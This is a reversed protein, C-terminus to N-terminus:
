QPDPAVYIRYSHGDAVSQWPGFVQELQRHQEPSFKGMYYPFEMVYIRGTARAKSEALNANIPFIKASPNLEKAMLALHGEMESIPVFLSMEGSTQMLNEVARRPEVIGRVFREWRGVSILLSLSFVAALLPGHRRLLSTAAGSQFLEATILGYLGFLAISAPIEQYAVRGQTSMFVLYSSGMLFFFTANASFKKSERLRGLIQRWCFAFGLLFPATWLSYRAVKYAFDRAYLLWPTNFYTDRTFSAQRMVSVALSLFFVFLALDVLAQALHQKRKGEERWALLAYRGASAFFVLAAPEKSMAALVFFLRAVIASLLFSPSLLCAAGLAFFLCVWTEGIPNLSITELLPKHLLAGGLLFLFLGWNAREHSPKAARIVAAALASSFLLFIAFNFYRFAYPDNPLYKWKLLNALYKVPYFRGLSWYAKIEDQITQGISAVKPMWGNYITDDMFMSWEWPINLFVALFGVLAGIGVLGLLRGTNVREDTERTPNM